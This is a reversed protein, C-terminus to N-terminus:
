ENMNVWITESCFDWTVTASCNNCFHNIWGYKPLFIVTRFMSLNLFWYLNEQQSFTDSTMYILKLTFSNLSVVAATRRMLSVVFKLLWRELMCSAVTKYEFWKPHLVVFHKSACVFLGQLIAWRVVRFYWTCGSNADNLTFLSLMKKSLTPTDCENSFLNGQLYAWQLSPLNCCFGPVSM